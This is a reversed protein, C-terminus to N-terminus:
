FQTKGPFDCACGDEPTCHCCIYGFRSTYFCYDRTQQPIVEGGHTSSPATAFRLYSRITRSLSADATFGPIKIHIKKQGM